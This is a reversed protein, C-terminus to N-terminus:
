INTIISPQFKGLKVLNGIRLVLYKNIITLLMYYYNDFNYIRLIYFLNLM